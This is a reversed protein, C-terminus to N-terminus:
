RNKSGPTGRIDIDTNGGTSGSTNFFEATTTPDFATFWSLASTGDSIIENRQMSYYISDGSNYYGEFPVDGNGAIDILNGSSDYLRIQLNTNSLSLSTDWIDAENKLASSGNSYGEKKNGILFYGYASITKGSLNIDMSTEDSGNFKTFYLGSLDINRDTNNKLELYEDNVSVDSGMWLLENIVLDGFNIDTGTLIKATIINSASSWNPASDGAKLGFCYDVDSNLGYLEISTKSTLISNASDYNFLQDISCNKQWRLDSLIAESSSWSLIASNQTTATSLDSIAQPIDTDVTVPIEQTQSINGAKDTSRYKLSHVGGNVINFSSGKIFNENDISYEYYDIGSGSDTGSLKYVAHEPALILNTTVNDIYVWSQIIKDGTNGAAFVLSLNQDSYESLDYTFQTWGSSAESASRQLITKGNLRVLFGPNDSPSSDLTQYNYYFSLNKPGSDFIYVLKNEWVYNGEDNFYEPKGIRVMKLGSYPNIGSDSSVIEADGTTSWNDLSGSEFDGGSIEEKPIKTWSGTISLSVTPSSKDITIKYAASDSSNGYQDKVQALWWYNNESLGSVEYNTSSSWNSEEVLTTLDSDSYLRFRYLIQATPCFSTSANWSFTIDSSNTAFNNGPSSLSPPSPTQWCGAIIKNGLSSIKDTFYSATTNILTTSILFFLVAIKLARKRMYIHM